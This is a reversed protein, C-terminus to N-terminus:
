SGSPQEQVQTGPATVHMLVTRRGIRSLAETIPNPPGEEGVLNQSSFTSFTAREMSVLRTTTAHNNRNFLYKPSPFLFLLWWFSLYVRPDAWWLGDCGSCILALFFARPRTPFLFIFMNHGTFTSNRYVKFSLLM